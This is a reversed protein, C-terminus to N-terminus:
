RLSLTVLRASSGLSNLARATPDMQSVAGGNRVPAAWHRPAGKRGDRRMVVAGATSGDGPGQGAAPADITKPRCCLADLPLLTEHVPGCRPLVSQPVARHRDPETVAGGAGVLRVAGVCIAADAPETSEVQPLWQDAYSAGRLLVDPVVPALHGDDHAHLAEVCGRGGRM